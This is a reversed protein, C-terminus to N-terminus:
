ILTRLALFDEHEFVFERRREADSEREAPIPTDRRRIM